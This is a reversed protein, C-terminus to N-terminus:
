VLDPITQSAPAITWVALSVPHSLLWNCGLVTGTGHTGTFDFTYECRSMELRARMTGLERIPRSVPEREFWHSWGHHSYVLRRRIAIRLM